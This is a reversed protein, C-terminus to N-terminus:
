IKCNLLKQIDEDSVSNTETNETEEDEVKKLNFIHLEDTTTTTNTEKHNLEKGKLLPLRKVIIEETTESNIMKQVEYELITDNEYIIPASYKMELDNWVQIYMKTKDMRVYTGIRRKFQLFPERECNVLDRFFHEMDLISTIIILECDLTKNHYRSKVSGSNSHNDLLRLLDVCSITDPRLDDLLVARELGYDQLPDNSSSSIYLDLGKSIALKKAFTTKGCGSQGTVFVVELQRDVKKTLLQHRYQFANKIEKAYTVYMLGDIEAINRIEGTIIGNIVDSINHKNNIKNILQKYDFSAVVNEPSYQFKDPANMHILYLNASDWNNRIRNVFNSELGFWQGIYKFQQPSHFKLLLHIHTPKLDGCKHNQNAQEDEDNYIDCDHIIYAYDKIATAKSLLIDPLKNMDFLVNGETDTLNSVVECSRVSSPEKAKM